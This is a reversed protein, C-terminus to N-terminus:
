PWNSGGDPTRKKSTDAPSLNVHPMASSWLKSHQPFLSFSLVLAGGPLYEETLAPAAWAHALHKSEPTVFHQPKSPLPTSFEGGLVIKVLRLEEYKM